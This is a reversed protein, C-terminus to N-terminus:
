GSSQSPVELRYLYVGSAVGSGDWEYTYSGATLQGSVLTAVEEGLINFIKLTVVENKPIRFEINTNANFPNPYNQYL